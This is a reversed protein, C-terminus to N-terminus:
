KTLLYLIITRTFTTRFLFTTTTTTTTQLVLFLGPVGRFESESGVRFM